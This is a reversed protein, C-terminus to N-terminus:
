SVKIWPHTTFLVNRVTCLDQIAQLELKKGNLSWTFMGIEAELGHLPVYFELCKSDSLITLHNHTVSFFGAGIYQEGSRYDGNLATYSGDSEFTLIWSGVIDTGGGIKSQTRLEPYSVLDQSTITTTYIGVIPSDTHPPPTHVYVAQTMPSSHRPATDGCAGLLSLFAIVAFGILIKKGM